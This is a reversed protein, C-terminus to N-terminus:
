KLAGSRTTQAGVHAACGWAHRATAAPDAGPSAEEPRLATFANDAPASEPATVLTPAIM